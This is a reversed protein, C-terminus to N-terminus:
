CLLSGFLLFITECENYTYKRNIHKTKIFLKGFVVVVVFLLCLLRFKLLGPIFLLDCLIFFLFLMLSWFLM